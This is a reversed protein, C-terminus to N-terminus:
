KRKKQVAYSAVDKFRNWQATTLPVGNTIDSSDEIDMQTPAPIFPFLPPNLQKLSISKSADQVNSFYDWGGWTWRLGYYGLTLTNDLGILIAVDSSGKLAADYDLHFDSAVNEDYISNYFGISMPINIYDRDTWIYPFNRCTPEHISGQYLAMGFKWYNYRENFYRPAANDGEPGECTFVGQLFNSITWASPIADNVSSDFNWTWSSMPGSHEFALFTYTRSALFVYVKATALCKCDATTTVSYTISNDYALQDTRAVTSCTPAVCGSPQEVCSSGVKDYGTDCSVLTCQGDVCSAVGHPFSCVHSCSGCNSVSTDTNVECGDTQKNNNCDGYGGACDGSCLGAACTITAMGSSSCQVGCAGCNTISASVDIECGNSPLQDCNRTDAPCLRCGNRGTGSHTVPCPGCSVTAGVSSCSTLPDCGGNLLSCGRLLADAQVFLVM